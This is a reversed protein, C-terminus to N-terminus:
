CLLIKKEKKKRLRKNLRHRAINKYRDIETEIKECGAERGGRIRDRQM